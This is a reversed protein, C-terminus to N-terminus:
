AFVETNTTKNYSANEKWGNLKQRAGEDFQHELPLYQSNIVTSFLVPHTDWLSKLVAPCAKDDQSLAYSIYAYTFAFVAKLQETNLKDINLCSPGIYTELTAERKVLCKQLLADVLLELTISKFRIEQIQKLFAGKVELGELSPAKEEVKPTEARGPGSLWNLFFRVCKYILFLCACGLVGRVLTSGWIGGDQGGKLSEMTDTYRAGEMAMSKSAMEEQLRLLANPELSQIVPSNGDISM